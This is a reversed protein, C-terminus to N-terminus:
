ASKQQAERERLEKEIEELYLRWLRHVTVPQEDNTRAAYYAQLAEWASQNM